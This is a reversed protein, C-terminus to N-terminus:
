LIPYKLTNFCTTQYRFSIIFKPNVYQTFFVFSLNLLSTCVDALKNSKLNILYMSLFLTPSKLPLFNSM